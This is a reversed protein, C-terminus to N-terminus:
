ISQAITRTATPATRSVTTLQPKGSKDINFTATTVANQNATQNAQYSVPQAGLQQLVESLYQPTVPGVVDTPDTSGAFPTYANSQWDGPLPGQYIRFYYDGNGSVTENYPAFYYKVWFGQGSQENAALEIHQGNTTTAQHAGAKVEFAGSKGLNAQEHHAEVTQVAVTAAPTTATEVTTAAAAAVPAFAAGLAIVATGIEIAKSTKSM